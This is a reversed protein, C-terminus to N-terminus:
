LITKVIEKDQEQEQQLSQGQRPFNNVLKNNLYSNRLSNNKPTCIILIIVQIWQMLLKIILFITNEKGKVSAYAFSIM